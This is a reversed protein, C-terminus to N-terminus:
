SGDRVPEVRAHSLGVSSRTHDLRRVQYQTDGETFTEGERLRAEFHRMGSGGDSFHALYRIQSDRWEAM